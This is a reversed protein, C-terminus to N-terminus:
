YSHLTVTMDYEEGTIYMQEWPAKYGAPVSLLHVHYDKPDADFSVRGNRDTEATTMEGNCFAVTVGPVPNGSVDRFYLVCRDHAEPVPAASPLLSDFLDTFEQASAKAGIEVAVVRRNRDVILTTPIASGGMNDFLGKEDRGISFNLGNESAFSRLVDITDSSEVSLAIVDVRDAYREWAEELAPFEMRCPPCWTAWFNILVLDHSQLSESLTFTTGSITKASFDPLIQGQYDAPDASACVVSFTFIIILVSSLALLRKMNTEGKKTEQLAM